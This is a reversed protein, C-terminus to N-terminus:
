DIYDRGDEVQEVLSVLLDSGGYGSERVGPLTQEIEEMYQDTTFPEPFAPSLHETQPDSQDDPLRTRLRYFIFCLQCQCHETQKRMLRDKARFGLCVNQSAGYAYFGQYPLSQTKFSHNSTKPIRRLLM